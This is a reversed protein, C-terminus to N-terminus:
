REGRINLLLGVIFALIVSALWFWVPVMESM